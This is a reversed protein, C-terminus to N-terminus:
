VVIKCLSLLKNFDPKIGSFFKRYIDLLIIHETLNRNGRSKVRFHFHGQDIAANIEDNLVCHPLLEDVMKEIDYRPLIIKKEKQLLLGILADFPLHLYDYSTDNVVNSILDRSLITNSGSTFILPGATFNTKNYVCMGGAYAGTPPMLNVLKVISHMEHISTITTCFLHSCRGEYNQLVWQFSKRARITQRSNLYDSWDSPLSTKQTPILSLNNVPSFDEVKIYMDNGHVLVDESQNNVEQVFFYQINENQVTELYLDWVKRCFRYVDQEVGYGILVTVM